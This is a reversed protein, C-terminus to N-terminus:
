VMRLLSSEVLICEPGTPLNSHPQNKEGTCADCLEKGHTNLSPLLAQRRKSTNALVHHNILQKEKHSSLESIVWAKLGM